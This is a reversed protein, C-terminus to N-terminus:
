FNFEKANATIALDLPERWTESGSRRLQDAALLAKSLQKQLSVSLSKPNPIEMDLLDKPEVKQLGGGYSRESKRNHSQIITSNLLAVIVCIEDQPMESFLGHFTTLNTAKSKNWIFRVGDRGFVGVLIQAIPRIEQKFWPKRNALLFREPLDLELGFQLYKEDAVFNPDLDLLFGPAGSEVIENYDLDEFVLGHIDKSRGICARARNADLGNLALTTKSVLFYNNAGTAIGRRSKFLDGLAVWGEPLKRHSGEFIPGWKMMPDLNDLDIKSISEHASGDLLCKSIEEFSDSTGSVVALQFAMDTKSKDILLITATSLNDEFPDLNNQFYLVKSVYGTEFLIRKFVRGFNSNLWDSPIIIAARGDPKLDSLIKLVFFVYINSTSPLKGYKSEIFSKDEISISFDHHRIYPPNAIIADFSEHYRSSLYDQILLTVESDRELKQECYDIVSRDVEHAVVRSNLGVNRISRVLIGTGLAPDLILDPKNYKIWSAMLDSIALPTFFQGLKKRHEKGVTSIYDAELNLKNITYKENM